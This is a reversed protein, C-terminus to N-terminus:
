CILRTCNEAFEQPATYLKAPTTHLIEAIHDLDDLQMTHRGSLWNSLTAESVGLRQALYSQKYGHAALLIRINRPIADRPHPTKKLKPM